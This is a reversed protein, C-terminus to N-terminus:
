VETSLDFMVVLKKAMEKDNQDITRRIIPMFRPDEFLRHGSVVANFARHAQEFAWKRTAETKLWFNSLTRYEVGYPKIRFCGAKGYLERRRTDADLLVSPIGLFLDAAKICNVATTYDKLLDNGFHIHGGASRLNPNDAYPKPNMELTYANFDPDCGFEKAKPNDLETDPFIESASINITLGLPKVMEKIHDMVFTISTDWQLVDSAPPICFEVAVNDEQVAHGIADIPKPEEKSGGILGIASVPMAIKADVSHLFMEPDCGLLLKEM